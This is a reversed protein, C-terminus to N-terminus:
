WPLVAELLGLPVPILLGFRFTVYLVATILPPAVLLARRSTGGHILLIAAVYIPTSLLYGLTEFAGLYAATAVVTGILRTPSFPGAEVDEQPDPESRPGARGPRGHFLLAASGLLLGCGVIGAGLAIPFVRPGLPDTQVGLDIRMAAAIVAGGFAVLFAALALETRRSSGM